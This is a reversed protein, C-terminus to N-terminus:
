SREETLYRYIVDGGRQAIGHFHKFDSRSVIVNRYTYFQEKSVRFENLEGDRLKDLIETIYQEDM